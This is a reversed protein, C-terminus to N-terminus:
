PKSAKWIFEFYRLYSESIEKSRMVIGIPQESFVLIVVRDDYITTSSPLMYDEPMYRVEVQKSFKQKSKQSIIMRLKSKKKKLKNLWLSYFAEGLSERFRGSSGFTSITKASLMDDAINKIGKKGRYVTVEQPEKSLERKLLLEPLIKEFDKRKQYLIDVFREPNDANYYKKNAEIVFSVIGKEILTELVDYVTRRHIGSKEAIKNATVSGVEILALYIKAETNTLGLNELIQINM